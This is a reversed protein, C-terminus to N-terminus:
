KKIQKQKSSNTCHDMLIKRHKKMAVHKKKGFLICPLCFLYKNSKYYVEPGPTNYKRKLGAQYYM